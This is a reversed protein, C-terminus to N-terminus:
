SASTWEGYTDIGYSSSNATITLPWYGNGYWRKGEFVVKGAQWQGYFTGEDKWGGEYVVTGTGERWGNSFHGEYYLAKYETTSDGISYYMGDEFDDYTLRGWGNPSDNSWEGEYWGENYNSGHYHQSVKTSGSEEISNISHSNISNSDSSSNKIEIQFREWTSAFAGAAKLPTDTENTAAQLWKGNAESQIYQIGNNEFIRFSEWSLPKTYNQGYAAQVYSNHKDQDIRASLYNGNAHSKFGVVGYDGAVIDFTEWSSANTHNVTANVGPIDQDTNASVYCNAELSKITISKGIYRDTVDSLKSSYSYYSYYDNGYGVLEKCMILRPNQVGRNVEYDTQIEILDKVAKPLIMHDIDYNSGISSVDNWINFAFTSCNDDLSWYDEDAIHKNIKDIDALSVEMSFSSRNTMEQYNNILESERNYWIGVHDNRNEVGGGWKGITIEEMPKVSYIGVNIDTSSTNLFSIWAHGTINVGVINASQAKSNFAGSTSSFITLIGVSNNASVHMPTAAIASILVMVITLLRKIKFM